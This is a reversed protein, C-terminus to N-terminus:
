QASEAKAKHEALLRAALEADAAKEARITAAKAKRKEARKANRYKKQCAPCRTVQNADQVKIVHEKGCDQCHISVTAGVLKVGDERILVQQENAPRTLQRYMKAILAMQDLIAQHDNSTEALTNLYDANASIASIADQSLIPANASSETTTQEVAMDESQENGLVVIEEAAVVDNNLQTRKAM